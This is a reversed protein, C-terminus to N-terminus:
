AVAPEGEFVFGRLIEVEEDEIGEAAIGDGDVQERFLGHFDVEFVEFGVAGEGKVQGGNVQVQEFDDSFQGFVEPKM